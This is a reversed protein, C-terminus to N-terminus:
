GDAEGMARDRGIRNSELAIELRARPPGPVTDIPGSVDTRDGPPADISPLAGLDTGMPGSTSPDKLWASGVPGAVVDSADPTREPSTSRDQTV